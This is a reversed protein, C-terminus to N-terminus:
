LVRIPQEEVVSKMPTTYTVDKDWVYVQPLSEADSDCLVLSPINWSTYTNKITVISSKIHTVINGRIPNTVGGTGFSWAVTNRENANTVTNISFDNIMQTQPKGFRANDSCFLNCDCFIMQNDCRCLPGVSM